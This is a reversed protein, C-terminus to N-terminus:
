GDGEAHRWLTEARVHSRPKIPRTGTVPKSRRWRLAANGEAEGCRLFKKM